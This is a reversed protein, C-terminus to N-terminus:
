VFLLIYKWFKCIHPQWPGNRTPRDKDCGDCFISYVKDVLTEHEPDSKLSIEMWSMDMEEGDVGDYVAGILSGKTELAPWEKIAAALDNNFRHRVEEESLHQFGYAVTVHPESIPYLGGDVAAASIAGKLDGDTQSVELWVSYGRFVFQFPERLLM